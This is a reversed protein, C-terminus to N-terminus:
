CLYSVRIQNRKGYFQIDNALAAVIKLGRKNMQEMDPQENVTDAIAGAGSDAVTIQVVPRDAINLVCSVKVWHHTDPGVCRLLDLQEQRRQHFEDFGEPRAKQTSDLGLVGYDLANVYLENLLTHIDQRASEPLGTDVLADVIEAVPSSAALQENRFAFELLWCHEAAYGKAHAEASGLAKAETEAPRKTLRRDLFM